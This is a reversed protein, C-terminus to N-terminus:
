HHDVTLALKKRDIDEKRLDMITIIEDLNWIKFSTNDIGVDMILKTEDNPLSGHCHGHLMISGRHQQHWSLMPFHSIVFMHDKYNLELYDQHSTFYPEFEKKVPRYGMKIQKKSIRLVDDHNGWVVHINGKLQDLIEKAKTMNCFFLDGVFIIDDDDNVKSNWQDIMAKNMEEISDFPRNCYKIVNRHHFHLDSTIYVNNNM